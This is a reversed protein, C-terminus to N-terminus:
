HHFIDCHKRDGDLNDGATGDATLKKVWGDPSGATPPDGCNTHV